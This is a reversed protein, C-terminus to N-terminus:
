GEGNVSNSMKKKEKEQSKERREKERETEKGEARQKAKERRGSEQMGRKEAWMQPVEKREYSVKERGM